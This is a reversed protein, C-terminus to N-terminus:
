SHQQQQQQQDPRSAADLQCLAFQFTDYVFQPLRTRALTEGVPLRALRILEIMSLVMNASDLRLDHPGSLDYLSCRVYAAMHDLLRDLPRLCNMSSSTRDVAVLFPQYHNLLTILGHFLPGGDTAPSHQRWM